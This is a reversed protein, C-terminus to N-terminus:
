WTVSDVYMTGTWAGGMWFQIGMRYTGHWDAPVSVFFSNWGNLTWGGGSWQAQWRAQCQDSTNCTGWACDDQHNGDSHHCATPGGDPYEPPMEFVYPQIWGMTSGAPIWVHFAVSSGAPTPAANLGVEQTSSATINFNVQLSAIGANAILTTRQTSLMPGYGSLWGQTTSEFNYYAVDAAYCIGTVCYNSQCDSNGNCTKGNM